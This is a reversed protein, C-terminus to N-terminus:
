LSISSRHEIKRRTHNNVKIKLSYDHLINLPIDDFDVGICILKNLDEDYIFQQDVNTGMTPLLEEHELELLFNSTSFSIESDNDSEESMEM